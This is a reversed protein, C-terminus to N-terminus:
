VVLWPKCAELYDCSKCTYPSYKRLFPLGNRLMLSVMRACALVDGTVGLFVNMDLWQMSLYAAKNLALECWCDYYYGGPEVNYKPDDGHVAYVAKAYMEQSCNQSKARSLTGNSLVTPMDFPKKPIDIYGYRINQLPIGFTKHVFLSYLPLQSDIDFDDQTKKSTSFKYDVIIAHTDTVILLDVVGVLPQSIRIDGLEEPSLQMRFERWVEPVKGSESTIDAILDAEYKAVQKIVDTFYRQWSTIGFETKLEPHLVESPIVPLYDGIDVVGDTAEDRLQGAKALVEHAMSGFVLHPSPPGKPETKLVYRHEYKAMCEAFCNLSSNSYAM